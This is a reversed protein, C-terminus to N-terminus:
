NFQMLPQAAKQAFSPGRYGQQQSYWEKAAKKVEGEQTLAREGARRGASEEGGEDYLRFGRLRAPLGTQKGHYYRRASIEKVYRVQARQVTPGIAERIGVNLVGTMHCPLTSAPKTSKNAHRIKM